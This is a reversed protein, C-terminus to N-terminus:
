RKTCIVQNQYKLNIAKYKRWGLNAFGKYYIAKLNFFKDVYNDITGFYIIHSGVKPIMEYENRIVYIQEIQANLFEDENIYKALIILEKLTEQQKIEINTNLSDIHIARNKHSKEVIDGNAVLVRASWHDSLPILYGETDVYYSQNYKNIVRLIPKRQEINICITGDTARYVGVE